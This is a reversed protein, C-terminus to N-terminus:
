SHQQNQFDRHQDIVENVIRMNPVSVRRHSKVFLDVDSSNNWCNIKKFLCLYILVSAPARGMGATCHVYVTLGQRNIMDNIINGAEFLKNRLDQENFDHIPFHIATIGREKYREQM